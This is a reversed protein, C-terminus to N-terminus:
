YKKQAFNQLSSNLALLCAVVKVQDYDSAGTNIDTSPASAQAIQPTSDYNVPAADDFPQEFSM